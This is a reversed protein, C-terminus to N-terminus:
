SSCSGGTYWSYLKKQAARQVRSQIPRGLENNTEKTSATSATLKGMYTAYYWILICYVVLAGQGRGLVLVAM